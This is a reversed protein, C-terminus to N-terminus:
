VETGIRWPKGDGGLGSRTRACPWRTELSRLPLAPTEGATEPKWAPFMTRSFSCGARRRICCAPRTHEGNMQTTLTPGALPFKEFAFSPIKTVVYDIGPEHAVRPIRAHHREQTRRAPVGLVGRRVRGVREWRCCCALGACLSGGSAPHHHWARRSRAVRPFDLALPM